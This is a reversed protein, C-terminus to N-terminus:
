LMFLRRLALALIVMLLLSIFVLSWVGKGSNPVTQARVPPTVSPPSAGPQTRRERIMNGQSHLNTISDTTETSQGQETTPREPIDDKKDERGKESGSSQIKKKLQKM